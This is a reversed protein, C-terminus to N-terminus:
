QPAAPQPQPAPPAPPAPPPPTEKKLSSALVIATGAYPSSNEPLGRESYSPNRALRVIVTPAGNDVVRTGPAPRQSVVTNAAYGRVSGEVSWAFGGDQLIGKAFVYVQRRVDPVELIEPRKPAPQGGGPAPEQGGGGAAVTYTATGLLWIVTLALLRPLLAALRSAM